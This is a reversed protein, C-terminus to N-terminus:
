LGLRRSLTEVAEATQRDNDRLKKEVTNFAHLITTHDKKEFKRALEPYSRDSSVRALYMAIQRAFALNKTRGGRLIDDLSVKFHDCVAHMIADVTPRALESKYVQPLQETVLDLGIPQSLMVGYALIRKMASVVESASGHVTQAIYEAADRDIRSGARQVMQLVLQLRSAQGLPKIDLLLANNFVGRVRESLFVMESPLAKGTIVIRAGNRQLEQVISRLEEQAASKNDLFEIDDFLFLDVNRTLNRFEQQTKTNLSQVFSNLFEEATWLHVRTEPAARLAENGIANLLHTKGSGSAGYVYLLDDAAIRAAARQASPLLESAMAKANLTLVVNESGAVWNAMTMTEALRASRARARMLEPSLEPEARRASPGFADDLRLPAGVRFAAAEVEEAHHVVVPTSPADFLTTQVSSSEEYAASSWQGGDIDFRVGGLHGQSRAVVRVAEGYDQELSCLSIQDESTLVLDGNLAVYGEIAGLHVNSNDAILSVLGASVKNWLDIM